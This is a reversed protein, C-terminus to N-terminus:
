PKICELEQVIWDTGLWLGIVEFSAYQQAIFKVAAALQQLQTTKETPNGACDDHAVIAIGNSHHKYASIDVRRLISRGRDSYPNAALIAVPGAETITDVYTAEFRKQLYEFVPVQTRGDMCNIATVFSGM